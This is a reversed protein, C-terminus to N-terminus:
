MPWLPNICCRLQRSTINSDVSSEIEEMLDSRNYRKEV